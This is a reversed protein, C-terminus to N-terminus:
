LQYKVQPTEGNHALVVEGKEDVLEGVFTQKALQRNKAWYYVIMLSVVVISGAYICMIKLFGKEYYPADSQVFINQGALGGLNSGAVALAMGLCRVQPDATNVSFWADNLGQSVATGAAFVTLIAYKLWTDTNRVLSYQIGSFVLSYIGCLLCLPGRIATKDSIWSVVIAYICVGFNHVAALESAIIADFGFNKIITPMYTGIGGKPTLSILNIASHGWIAPNTLLIQSARKVGISELSIKKRPDDLIVRSRIIRNDEETFLNLCKLGCLPATNTTTSPMFFIFWLGVILTFLGNLLFLWQWQKLGTSQPIKFIGGAILGGVGASFYNGIYVLTVRMAMEGRTYFSALITLAAALYGAECMGLLFRTAYFGALNRIATQATAVTGWAFIQIVLWKAAGIRSLVMNFPIEFIVIGALMLQNGYNVQDTGIGIDRTFSTTIAYAINGKDLQLAFLGLMLSPLVLYDLKRRVRRETQLSWDRVLGAEANAPTEDMDRASEEVTSKRPITM